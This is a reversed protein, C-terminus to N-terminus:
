TEDVLLCSLEVEVELSGLELWICLKVECVLVGSLENFEFSIDVAEFLGASSIIFIMKGFYYSGLYFSFLISSILGITFIRDELIAFSGKFSSRLM